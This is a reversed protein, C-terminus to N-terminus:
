AALHQTGQTMKIANMLRKIRRTRRNRATARGKGRAAKAAPDAPKFDDFEGYRDAVQWELVARDVFDQGLSPVTLLHGAGEAKFAHIAQPPIVAFVYGPFVPRGITSARGFRTRWTRKLPLFAPFGSENLAEALRKERQPATVIISWM